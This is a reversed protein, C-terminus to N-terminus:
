SENDAMSSSSYEQSNVNQNLVENRSRTSYKKKKSGSPSEATINLDEEAKRKETQSKANTDNGYKQNWYDKNYFVRSNIHSNKASVDKRLKDLDSFNRVHIKKPKENVDDPNNKNLTVKISDEGLFVKNVSKDSQLEHCIRKIKNIDYSSPQTFIVEPNTHNASNKNKAIMEAILRESTFSDSLHIYLYKIFKNVKNIKKMGSLIIAKTIYARRLSLGQEKIIKEATVAADTDSITKLMNDNKIYIIMQSKYYRIDAKLKMEQKDNENQEVYKQHKKSQEVIDDNLQDNASQAALANEDMIEAITSCNAFNLDVAEALSSYANLVLSIMEDVNGSGRLPKLSDELDKPPVIQPKKLSSTAEPINCEEVNFTQTNINNNSTTAKQMNLYNFIKNSDNTKASNRQNKRHMNIQINDSDYIL